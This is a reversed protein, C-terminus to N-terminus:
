HCGRLNVRQAPQTYVSPSHSETKSQPTRGCGFCSGDIAKSSFSVIHRHNKNILRNIKVGLLDSSLKLRVAFARLQLCAASHSSFRKTSSHITCEAKVQSQLHSRHWQRPVVHLATDCNQQSNKEPPTLSCKWPWYFGKWNLWRTRGGACLLCVPSCQIQFILLSNLTLYQYQVPQCCVACIVM